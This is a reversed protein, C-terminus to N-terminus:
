FGLPAAGQFDMHQERERERGMEGEKRGEEKESGKSDLIRAGGLKCQMKSLLISNTEQFLFGGQKYVLWWRVGGLFESSVVQRFSM